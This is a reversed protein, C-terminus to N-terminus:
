PDVIVSPASEGKAPVFVGNKDIMVTFQYQGTLRPLLDASATAGGALSIFDLNEDLISQMKTLISQMKALIDQRKAVINIDNALFNPPFTLFATYATLNRIKLKQTRGDIAAVAPRVRYEGEVEIIYIDNLGGM